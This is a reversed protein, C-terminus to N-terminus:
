VVEDPFAYKERDAEWGIHRRVVLVQEALSQLVSACYNSIGVDVSRQLSSGGLKRVGILLEDSLLFRGLQTALHLLSM